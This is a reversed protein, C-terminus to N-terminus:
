FGSGRVAGGCPTRAPNCNVRIVIEDDGIVEIVAQALNVHGSSGDRRQRPADLAALRRPHTIEAANRNKNSLKKRSLHGGFEPLYGLM